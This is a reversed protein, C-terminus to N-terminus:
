RTHERMKDPLKNDKKGEKLKILSSCMNRTALRNERVKCGKTFM